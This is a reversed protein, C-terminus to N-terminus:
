QNKFSQPIRVIFTTGEGPNGTVQIDGNHLDIIQKTISLGLGNGKQSGDRARDVMHFPKFIDVREEVPIGIGSDSITVVADHSSIATGIRITGQQPTFKISNSLLNIWVQGLQDGDAQVIVELLELEIVLQKASWQPELAIVIKRLQEDLRFTSLKLPLDELQLQSLHLLNQGLRSLRESEEEIISLYHIRSEESMNKHKLAKTFGSISTLPTQIEHSVNTVFEQRMRDLKSLEIAMENFSTTLQGIEDKRKTRLGVNFNGKAMRRTAKTLRRIPKVIYGAAFFILVSGILLIIFLITRVTNQFMKELGSAEVMLFLAYNGNQDQFPLGVITQGDKRNKLDRIVSGAIVRKVILPDIILPEHQEKLIQEGAQNYIQIRSNSLGSIGNMFPELQTTSISQYTQILKKGNTVLNDSIMQQIQSRYLLSAIVFALILSAIVTGM